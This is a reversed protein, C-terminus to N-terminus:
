LDRVVGERRLRAQDAARYAYTSGGALFGSNFVGGALVSVGRRACTDLFGSTLRAHIWCRIGDRSCCATSRRVLSSRMVSIGSTSAWGSLM